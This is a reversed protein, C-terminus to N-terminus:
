DNMSGREVIVYNVSERMIGTDVLPTDSGKKRITASANPEFNGGIIEEQILGKQLMGINTMLEHAEMEGRAIKKCWAGIYSSIEDMHNDVSDRLFPRSPIHVTGLENYAAIECLDVGDNEAGGAQFGIRVELNAIQKITELFRKGEPTLKDKVKAAM